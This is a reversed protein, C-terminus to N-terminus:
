TLNPNIKLYKKFLSNNNYSILLVLLKNIIFLEDSNLNLKNIILNNLIQLINNRAEITDYTDLSIKKNALCLIIPNNNSLLLYGNDYGIEIGNLDDTLKINKNWKLNSMNHNVILDRILLNYSIKKNNSNDNSKKIATILIGAILTYVIIEAM